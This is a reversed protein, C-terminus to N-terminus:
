TKLVSERFARTWNRQETRAMCQIHKACCELKYGALELDISKKIHKKMGDLGDVWSMTSRLEDIQASTEVMLRMTDTWMLSRVYKRIEKKKEYFM